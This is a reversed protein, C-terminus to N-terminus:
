GERRKRAVRVPCPGKSLNEQIGGRVNEIAVEENSPAVAHGVLGARVIEKEPADRVIEDFPESKRESRKREREIEAGIV